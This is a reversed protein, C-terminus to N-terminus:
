VPYFSVREELEHALDALRGLHDKTGHNTATSRGDKRRMLLVRACEADVYRWYANKNRSGYEAITVHKSAEDEVPYFYIARSLAAIGDDCTLLWTNQPKGDLNKGDMSAVMRLYMVDRAGNLVREVRKSGRGGKNFNDKIADSLSVFETDLSGQNSSFCFKAKEAELAPVFNAVGDMYELFRDFKAEPSSSRNALIIDHVKLLALYSISFFQQEIKPLAGYRRAGINSRYDRTANPADRYGPCFQELFQEFSSHLSDLYSEDAEGLAMGPSLFLFPTNFVNQIEALLGENAAAETSSNLASRLFSLINLDLTLSTEIGQSIDRVVEEPLLLSQEDDHRSPKILYLKRSM